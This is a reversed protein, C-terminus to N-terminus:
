LMDTAPRGLRIWMMTKTRRAPIATYTVKSKSYGLTPRIRISGTSLTKVSVKSLICHGRKDSWETFYIAMDELRHEDRKENKSRRKASQYKRPGSRHLNRTKLPISRM